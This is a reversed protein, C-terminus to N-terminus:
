RTIAHIKKKIKQSRSLQASSLESERSTIISLISTQNGKTIAPLMNEAHTPLDRPICTELTELLIPFLRKAYDVRTAALSAFLKIGWVETIVSGQKFKTLLKDIEGWIEEPRLHAITALAIFAGWIMRNEKSDLLKLFAQVHDQILFPNLYGIEYLVKLCDSRVNKNCNDLNEVIERIGMLDENTALEKALQQNPIENRINQHFAIKDITSM